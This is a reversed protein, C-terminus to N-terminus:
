IATLLSPLRRQDAHRRNWCETLNLVPHGEDHRIATPGGNGKQFPWVPVEEVGGLYCLAVVIRACHVDMCCTDGNRFTEAARPRGYSLLAVRSFFSGALTPVRLSPSPM